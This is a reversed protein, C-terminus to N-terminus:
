PVYYSPLFYMRGADIKPLIAKTVNVEVSAKESQSVLKLLKGLKFPSEYRIVTASKVKALDM